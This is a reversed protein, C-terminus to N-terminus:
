QSMAAVVEAVSEVRFGDAAIQQLTERHKKEDKAATADSLVIMEFGYKVGDKATGQVCVNTQMGAVLLRKIKEQKLYGLLPTGDFSSVKHKTFVPEESLPRVSHHIKQGETNPAFFRPNKKNSEHQIHVVPYGRTRFLELINQAHLAAEHSGALAYNGGQFYDNQIDIILLATKPSRMDLSVTRKETSGAMVTALSSLVFVGCVCIGICYLRVKRTM